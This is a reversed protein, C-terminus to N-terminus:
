YLSAIQTSGHYQICRMICKDFDVYQVICSHARPLSHGETFLLTDSDAWCIYWMLAFYYYYNQINSLYIYVKM